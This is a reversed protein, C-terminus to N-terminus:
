PQGALDHAAHTGLRSCSCIARICCARVFSGARRGLAAASSPWGQSAPLRGSGQLACWGAGAGSGAPRGVAAAPRAGAVGGRRLGAPAGWCAGYARGTLGYNYSYVTAGQVSILTHLADLSSSLMAGSVDNRHLRSPAGRCACVRSRGLCQGPQHLANLGWAPIFREPDLRTKHPSERYLRSVYRSLALVVPVHVVTSREHM